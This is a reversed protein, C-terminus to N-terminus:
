EGNVFLRKHDEAYEHACSYVADDSLVTKNIYMYYVFGDLQGVARPKNSTDVLDGEARHLNRSNVFLFVRQKKNGVKWAYWYIKINERIINGGVTCTM